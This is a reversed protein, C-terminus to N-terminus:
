DDPYRKKATDPNISFDGTMNYLHNHYKELYTAILSITEQIYADRIELSCQDLRSSFQKWYPSEEINYIKALEYTAVRKFEFLYDTFEEKLMFPPGNKVFARYSPNILPHILQATGYLMHILDM